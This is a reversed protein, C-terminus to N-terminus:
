DNYIISAHTYSDDYDIFADLIYQDEILKTSKVGRYHYSYTKDTMGYGYFVNISFRSEGFSYIGLENPETSGSGGWLAIRDEFLKDKNFVAMIVGGDHRLLFFYYDGKKQEKVIQLNQLDGYIDSFCEDVRSIIREEDDLPVSTLFHYEPYSLAMLLSFMFVPIMVVFIVAVARRLKRKGKKMTSVVAEDSAAAISDKEIKEGKLIEVVSVDLTEALPMLMSIDPASRGTEWKSVAKDTISLKEALQKQNLNLEKRRQSIFAGTLRNDM